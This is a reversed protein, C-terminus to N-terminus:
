RVKRFVLVHAIQLPWSRGAVAWGLRNAGELGRQVLGRLGPDRGQPAPRVDLLELGHRAGLRQMGDLSFLVTHWPPAFIGLWAPLPAERRTLRALRGIAGLFAAFPATPQLSVFLGGGELLAGARTLWADHEVLHEFVACLALAGFREGAVADLDGQVVPLGRERDRAAMERSLEVGRAEFGEARLMAVLGGWGAGYDLVTGRAGHDRLARVISAHYTRSAPLNREPDGQYHGAGAYEAAVAADLEARTPLPDLQITGCAGCRAYRFAGQGGYPALGGHCAVCARM